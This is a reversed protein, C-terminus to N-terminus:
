GRGVVHSFVILWKQLLISDDWAASDPSYMYTPTLSVYVYVYYVHTCMCMIICCVHVCICICICMYLAPVHLHTGWCSVKLVCPLLDALFPTFEDGFTVPLYVFLMLYGDRLHTPNVPDQSSQIFHPMLQSLRDLGQALLVESLGQAAGSRDVSSSESQLTKFLWPLLEALSEEGMGHVQDWTCVFSTYLCTYVYNYICTCTHIGVYVHVYKLSVCHCIYM